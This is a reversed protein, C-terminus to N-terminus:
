EGSWEKQICLQCIGMPLMKVHAPQIENCKPCVISKPIIVQPQCPNIIIEIDEFQLIAETTLPQFLDDFNIKKAM